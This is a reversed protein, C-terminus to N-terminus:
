TAACTHLGINWLLEPYGYNFHLCTHWVVQQRCSSGSWCLNTALVNACAVPAYQRWFTHTHSERMTGGFPILM